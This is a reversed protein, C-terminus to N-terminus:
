RDVGGAAVGAAGGAAVGAAVGVAARVWAVTVGARAAAVAEADTM